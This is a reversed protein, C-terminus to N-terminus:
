IVRRPKPWITVNPAPATGLQREMVEPLENAPSAAALLYGQVSDCRERRLWELQDYSEVGEAVVGISLSTALGIIARVIAGTGTEALNRVFSQDIKLQDIPFSGLYSLSSYGTGFDDLSIKIGEGRLKRLTALTSPSQSLLVTETIELSLRHAPLGSSELADMVSGVLDNDRLQASSVNVAVSIHPPWTVAEACSQRLVWEGLPVIFGLEEAIPIFESPPVVGRTPHHWRLLAEFCVVQDLRLDYTPQYLLKFEGRTLAERLDTGLARRARIRADMEPEFFRWTGRGDGKARYLAMDANRILLDTSAGDVPALAIGISVGIVARRGDLDYPESTAEIITRALATADDRSSSSAQIVAFEDGGFRAITDAGNVCNRLRAGFARLLQDGVAHGLTDNVEKFKDLDLCFVAFSKGGPLGSLAQEMRKAFLTRNPLRTLGDHWAMFTVQEEAARRDTIDEFTAAWGGNPAPRLSVALMRGGTLAMNFLTPARLAIRGHKEQVLMHTESGEHNGYRVRLAILEEITMGLKVEYPPLRFLESYRANVVVLRNEHDFLCLGQSMNDLATDLRLNTAALRLGQEKLPTIDSMVAVFGNDRTASRTVKLWRGNGTEIEGAVDPSPLMRSLDRWAMGSVREPELAAPGFQPWGLAAMAQNNALVVSGFRDVVVIGEHASEMADLLRGQASQRQVVERTMMTRLSDRMTSLSTLLHGIEDNGGPPVVVDMRGHAILSAVNSAAMVRSVIRRALLWSILGSAAVAAVLAAINLWWAEIVATHSHQRGAFGDGATYNILNDIEVEAATVYRALQSDREANIRDSANLGSPDLRLETWANLAARARGAAQAARTSQARDTAITLDENVLKAFESLRAELALREANSARGPGSGPVGNATNATTRDPSSASSASANAALQMLALDTAAARAYNIAMLSRDYTENVLEGGRTIRYSAHLGLVGVISTMVLFAILITGRITWPFLPVFPRGQAGLKDPATVKELEARTPVPPLDRIDRV